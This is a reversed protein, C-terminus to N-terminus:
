EEWQKQKRGIEDWIDPDFLKDDISNVNKHHEISAEDPYQHSDYLNPWDSSLDNLYLIHLLEKKTLYVTKGKPEPM